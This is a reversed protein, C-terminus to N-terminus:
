SELLSAFGRHTLFGEHEQKLAYGRQFRTWVPWISVMPWGISRAADRAKAKTGWFKVVSGDIRTGWTADYEFGHATEPHM